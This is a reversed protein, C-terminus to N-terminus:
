DEAIPVILEVSNDHSIVIRKTRFHPDVLYQNDKYWKQTFTYLNTKSPNYWVKTKSQYRPGHGFLTLHILKRQGKQSGGRQDDPRTKLHVYRRTFAKTNM